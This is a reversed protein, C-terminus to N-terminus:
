PELGLSVRWLDELGEIDFGYVELLAGDYTNGEEFLGLLELMKEEGYTDILFDVLSYSEAYALSAEEPNTPFSGCLSQVPILSDESIAEELISQYHEELGGENHMALGEDLWAPLNGPLRFIVPEQTFIGAGWLVGVVLVAIVVTATAARWVPNQVAIVVTAAATRWVPSQPILNRLGEWFWNREEQQAEQKALKSLLRERLQAKFSPSPNDRHKTLKQAFNIAMRYDESVDEGAKVEEGALLRDINESFEREESTEM